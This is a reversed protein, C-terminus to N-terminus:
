QMETPFQKTTDRNSDFGLGLGLRVGLELGLGLRLGLGLGFRVGACGQSLHSLIDNESFIKTDLGRPLIELAMETTKSQNPTFQFLNGPSPKMKDLAFRASGGGVDEESGEGAEGEDPQRHDQQEAPVGAPQQEARAAGGLHAPAAGTPRSWQPQSNKGFSNSPTVKAHLLVSWGGM